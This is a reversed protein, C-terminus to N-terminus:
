ANGMLTCQHQQLHAHLASYGRMDRELLCDFFAVLMAEVALLAAIRRTQKGSRVACIQEVQPMHHTLNVVLTVPLPQHSHEWHWSPGSPASKASTGQSFLRMRTSPTFFEGSCERSCLMVM